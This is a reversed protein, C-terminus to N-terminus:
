GWAVAEERVMGTGFFLESEFANHSRCRVQINSADAAGGAAYPVVHHFELCGKEACRGSPGVFACRGEDRAWVERRVAAPIHRLRGPLQPTDRPRSTAAFKQKELHEVLLVLARDFVVAVDGDPISHRLLDQARRLRDHTERSVTFQVKYREPALPTVAPRHRLTPAAVTAPPATENSVAATLMPQRDFGPTPATELPVKREPLKRVSVAVDPLPRLSVVIAEVDRKSKHRALALVERHNAETLHPALLRANTVTVSGDLLRDLIAPLRRAARAVEIRGLAAHESLHLVQTCYTFLSSYGQALCLRRADLEMLSRILEATAQRERAALGVVEALLQEDTLHALLHHSQAMGKQLVATEAM